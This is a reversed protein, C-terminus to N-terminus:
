KDEPWTKLVMVNKEAVFRYDVVLTFESVVLISIQSLGPKSREQTARCRWPSLHKNHFRYDRLM